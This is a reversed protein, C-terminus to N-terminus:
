FEEMQNASIYDAGIKAKTSGLYADAGSWILKGDAFFYTHGLDLSGKFPTGLVRGDGFRYFSVSSVKSTSNNTVVTNYTGDYLYYGLTYATGTFSIKIYYEKGEEFTYGSYSSINVINWSSGQGIGYYINNSNFGLMVSYNSAFPVQYSSYQSYKLKIIIDWTNATSLDITSTQIYNSASFGSYVGNNNTLTGTVTLTSNGSNEIFEQTKAGYNKTVGSNGLENIERSLLNSNNDISMPLNYLEKIDDASLATAYLRFDSLKGDMTEVNSSYEGLKWASTSPITITKLNANDVTNKLVGDIYFEAGVGGEWTLAYHHWNGDLQNDMDFSTGISGNNIYYWMKTASNLRFRIFGNGGLAVVNSTNNSSTSFTNEDFKAWIAMTLATCTSLVTPMTLHSTKATFDIASNYRPSDSSHGISTKTGNNSYGTLDYELNSNASIVSYAAENVHPIYPTAISGEEIKLNKVEIWAGVTNTYASCGYFIFAQNGSSSYTWTHSVYTWEKTVKVTTGGAREHGLNTFTFNDSGRIYCSWTYTNGAVAGNSTTFGGWPGYSSGTVTFRRVPQGDYYITEHRYNGNNGSSNGVTASNATLNPNTGNGKLAYHICLGKALEKVERLTLCNNYVRFDQRYLVSSNVLVNTVFEYSEATASTSFTGKQVGNIYVTATPNKYTVCVHTWQYSPICNSIVGSTSGSKCCGGWSWHLTNCNPYLFLTFQRGSSGGDNGFLRHSTNGSAPPETNVYIWFAITLENNNLINKTQAATWNFAGSSMAEGMKGDIYVPTATVTPEADGLGYNKTNGMLPYWALLSM